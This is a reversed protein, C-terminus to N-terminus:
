ITTDFSSGSTAKATATKTSTGSTFKNIDLAVADKNVSKAHFSGTDLANTRKKKTSEKKDKDKKTSDTKDTTSESANDKELKDYYAGMLKKYKGSKILGYDGINNYISSCTTNRMAGLSNSFYNTISASDWSINAM